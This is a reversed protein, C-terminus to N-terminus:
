LKILKGNAKFYKGTLRILYIGKPVLQGNSSSIRCKLVHNGDDYENHTSYVLAGTSSYISCNIVDRRGLSFPISVEDIFPVPYPLLQNMQLVENISTQLDVEELTFLQGDSNKISGTKVQAGDSMNDNPIEMNLLTGKLGITYFGNGQYHLGWKNVDDQIAFPYQEVNNNLRMSGYLGSAISQFSYYASGVLNVEWHQLSSKTYSSQVIDTGNNSNDQSLTLAKGSLKSIIKYTKGSIIPAKVEQVKSFEICDLNLGSATFQIKLNHNGEPLNVIESYIGSTASSGTPSLEATTLIQDDVMLTLGKIGSASAYTLKLQYDAATEINVTYNIWEGVETWGVYFNSGSQGIDVYDGTGNRYKRGQNSKSTDYFATGLGGNDFDEAEIRGPITLSKYPKQGIEFYQKATAMLDSARLFVYRGPYENQLREVVRNIAAYGAGGFTAQVMYIGTFLPMSNSPTLNKLYNYLDSENHVGGGTCVVPMGLWNYADAYAGNTWAFTGLVNTKLM